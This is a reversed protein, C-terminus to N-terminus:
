FFSNGGSTNCLHTHVSELSALIYYACNILLALRDATNWFWKRHPQRPPHRSAQQCKCLTGSGLFQTWSWGKLTCKVQKYGTNSRINATLHSILFSIINFSFGWFHLSCQGVQRPSHSDHSWPSHETLVTNNMCVNGDPANLTKLVRYTATSLCGVKGSTCCTPFESNGYFSCMKEPLVLSKCFDSTHRQICSKKKTIINNQFSNIAFM